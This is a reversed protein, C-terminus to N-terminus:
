QQLTVGVGGESATQCFSFGKQGQSCPSYKVTKWM